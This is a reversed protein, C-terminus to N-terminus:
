IRLACFIDGLDPQQFTECRTSLDTVDNIKNAEKALRFGTRKSVQCEVVRDSPSEDGSYPILKFVWCLQEVIIAIRAKPFWKISIGTTRVFCRCM